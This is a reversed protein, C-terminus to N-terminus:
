LIRSKWPPSIEFRPRRSQSVMYHGRLHFHLCCPARYRQYGVVFSCSTVVWFVEVQTLNTELEAEM